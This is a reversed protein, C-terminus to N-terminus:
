WEVAYADLMNEQYAARQYEEMCRRIEQLEPCDIKDLKKLRVDDM